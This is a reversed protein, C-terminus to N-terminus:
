DLGAAARAAKKKAEYEPDVDSGAERPNYPTRATTAFEEDLLEIQRDINAIQAEYRAQLDANFTGAEKAAQRQADTGLQNELETILKNKQEILKGRKATYEGEIQTPTKATKKAGESQKKKWATFGEVAEKPGLSMIYANDTAWQQGEPTKLMENFASMYRMQEATNAANESNAKSRAAVWSRFHDNVKIPEINLRSEATPYQSLYAAWKPHQVLSDKVEKVYGKNKEEEEDELRQEERGEKWEQDAREQLVKKRRRDEDYDSEKAKERAWAGQTHSWRQDEREQTIANRADNEASKTAAKWANVGELFAPGVRPSILGAAAGGAIPLIDSFKVAM